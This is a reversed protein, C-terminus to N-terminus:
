VIASFRAERQVNVRAMGTLPSAPVVLFAQRPLLLFSADAFSVFPQGVNVAGSFITATEAAIPELGADLNAIQFSVNVAGVMGVFQCEMQRIVLPDTQDFYFLGGAGATTFKLQPAVITPDAGGALPTAAAAAVVSTGGAHAVVPLQQTPNSSNRFNNIANAVEDATALIAGASRRLIVRVSNASLLQVTTVPVVNPAGSDFQEVTVSNGDLGYARARYRVLAGGGGVDLSARGVYSGNYTGPGTLLQQMSVVSSLDFSVAM